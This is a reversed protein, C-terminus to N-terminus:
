KWCSGTYRLWFSPKMTTYAMSSGRVNWVAFCSILSMRSSFFCRLWCVAMTKTPLLTSRLWVRATHLCSAKSNAESYSHKKWSVDAALSILTLIIKWSATLCNRTKWNFLFAFPGMFEMLFKKERHPRSYGLSFVDTSTCRWLRLTRTNKQIEVENWWPM